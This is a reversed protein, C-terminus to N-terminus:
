PTYNHLFFNKCSSYCPYNDKTIQSNFLFRMNMLFRVQNLIIFNQRRNRSTRTFEGRDAIWIKCPILLLYNCVINPTNIVFHAIVMKTKGAGAELILVMDQRIGTDPNGTKGTGLLSKDKLITVFKNLYNSKM